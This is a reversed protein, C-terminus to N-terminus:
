SSKGPAIKFSINHDGTFQASAMIMNYVDIPESPYATNKVWGREHPTAPDFPKFYKKRVSPIEALAMMIREPVVTFENPSVERSELSTAQIILNSDCGMKRLIAALCIRTEMSNDFINPFDAEGRVPSDKPLTLGYPCNVSVRVLGTESTMVTTGGQQHFINAYEPAVMLDLNQVRQTRNVVDDDTMNISEPTSTYMYVSVGVSSRVDKVPRQFTFRDFMLLHSPDYEMKIVNKNSILNEEVYIYPQGWLLPIFIPGSPDVLVLDKIEALRQYFREHNFVFETRELRQPVTESAPQFRPPENTALRDDVM